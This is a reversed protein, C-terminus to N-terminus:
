YRYVVKGGVAFLWLHHFFQTYHPISFTFDSCLAFYGSSCNTFLMLKQGSLIIVFIQFGLNLRIFVTVSRFFLIRLLTKKM